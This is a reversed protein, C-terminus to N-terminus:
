EQGKESTATAGWRVELSAQFASSMIQDHPGSRYVLILHVYFFLLYMLTPIVLLAAARALLHCLVCVQRSGSPLDCGAARSPAGVECLIEPLWCCLEPSRSAAPPLSIFAWRRPFGKEGSAGM